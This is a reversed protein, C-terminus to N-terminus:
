LAIHDAVGRDHMAAQPVPATRAKHMSRQTTLRPPGTRRTEAATHAVCMGSGWDLPAASQLRQFASRGHCRSVSAPSDGGTMTKRRNFRSGRPVWRANPPAEADFHPMPAFRDTVPCLGLKGRFSPANVTPCHSYKALQFLGLLGLYGMYSTREFLEFTDIVKGKITLVINWDADRLRENSTWQWPACM